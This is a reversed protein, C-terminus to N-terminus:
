AYAMFYNPLLRPRVRQGPRLKLKFASRPLCCTPVHDGYVIRALAEAGDILRLGMRSLLAEECIVVVGDRVAPLQWWGPQSAIDCLDNFVKASKDGSNIIPACIILVDPAFAVLDEWTIIRAKEGNTQMADGGVLEILDKVWGGEVTLPHLSGLVSIKQRRALGASISAKQSYIVVKRLRERVKRVIAIGQNRENIANAINLIADLVEALTYPAIKVIRTRPSIRNIKEVLRIELNNTKSHPMEIVIIDPKVQALAEFDIDLLGGLKSREISLKSNEVVDDGGFSVDSGMDSSSKRAHFHQLAQVSKSQLMGLSGDTAIPPGLGQRSVDILRSAQIDFAQIIDRVGTDCVAISKDKNHEGYPGPTATDLFQAAQRVYQNGLDHYKGALQVADVPNRNGQIKGNSREFLESGESSLISPCDSNNSVRHHIREQAMRGPPIRNDADHVYPIGPMRNLYNFNRHMGMNSLDNTSGLQVPSAAGSSKHDQIINDMVTRHGLSGSSQTKTMFKGDMLMMPDYQLGNLDLSQPRSRTRREMNLEPSSHVGVMGFSGGRHGVPTLPPTYSVSGELCDATRRASAVASAVSAVNVQNCKQILHRLADPSKGFHHHFYSGLVNGTCYGDLIEPISEGITKANPLRAKYSNKWKGTSVIGGIHQEQVLESNSSMYGRMVSGSPFLPCEDGVTVEVYGKLVKTRSMIARFPFIGVMPQPPFGTRVQLSQCLVLLGGGEAFVIGGAEVFKKLGARFIKNDALTLAHLEPVGGGLYVASINPPLSDTLPSFFVLEAGFDRLLDLNEEYYFNFASDRAIGIRCKPQESGNDVSKRTSSSAEDSTNTLDIGDDCSSEKNALNPTVKAAKSRRKRARKRANKSMKVGQETHLHHETTELLSNTEPPVVSSADLQIGRALNVLGDVDVNECVMTCLNFIKNNIVTPDFASELTSNRFSDDNPVGGLIPIKRQCASNVIAELDSLDDLDKVNNFIIGGIEVGEDWTCYGRVLAGISNEKKSGDMVLVVPVDLWKALQATNYPLLDSQPDGSDPCKLDDLLGMTGEIVCFDAGEGYRICANRIDTASSFWRDLNVSPRGTARAHYLPDVFDPGVKFAQVNMNRECLAAMIGVSLSSKGVGSASGAIIVTPCSIMTPSSM